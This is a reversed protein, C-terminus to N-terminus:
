KSRTTKRWRSELGPPTTLGSAALVDEFREDERATLVLPGDATVAVTHEFHASLSGDRTVATWGDDLVKVAAKGLTSWRSSRWCWARPWGRARARAARLQGGPAGRADGDRDRPRRVRAGGLVRAGRRAEARRPRHGVRRGGVKMQAIARYLAEQTVRLLKAAQDPSRAWPSPSRRTASSDTWCRASTWRSSTARREAGPAALSDRPDGRRQDLHVADGPLRPLGQVGADGGGGRDDGRGHADLEATTVGPRVM